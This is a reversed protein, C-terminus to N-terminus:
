NPYVDSYYARRNDLPRAEQLYDRAPKFGSMQFLHNMLDGLHSSRITDHDRLYQCINALAFFYYAENDHMFRVKYGEYNLLRYALKRGGFRSFRVFKTCLGALGEGPSPPRNASRLWASSEHENLAIWDDGQPCLFKCGSFDIQFITEKELYRNLAGSLCMEKLAALREEYSTFRQQFLAPIELIVNKPTADRFPNTANQIYLAAIRELDEAIELFDCTGPLISTLIRYLASLKERVPYTPHDATFVADRMTVAQFSRLDDELLDMLQLALDRYVAEKENRYLTKLDMLLNFARTGEIYRFAIYRSTHEQIEPIRFPAQEQLRNIVALEEQITTSNDAFRRLVKSGALDVVDLHRLDKWLDLVFLNLSEETIHLNLPM